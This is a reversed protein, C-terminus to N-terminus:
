PFLKGAFDTVYLFQIERLPSHNKKKLCRTEKRHKDSSHQSEEEANVLSFSHVSVILLLSFVLTALSKLKM